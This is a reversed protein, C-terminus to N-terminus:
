YKSKFYGSLVMFIRRKGMLSKYPSKEKLAKNTKLAKVKKKSVRADLIDLSTSKMSNTELIRCQNSM